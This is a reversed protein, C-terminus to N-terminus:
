SFLVAVVVEPTISGIDWLLLWLIQKTMTNKWAELASVFFVSEGSGARLEAGQILVVSNVLFAFM